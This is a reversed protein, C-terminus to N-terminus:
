YQKCFMERTIASVAPSQFNQGHGHEIGQSIRWQHLSETLNRKDHVRDYAMKLQEPLLLHSIYQKYDSSSLNKYYFSAIVVLSSFWILTKPPLQLFACKKRKKWKWGEWFSHLFFISNGLGIVFTFIWSGSLTSSPVNLSLRNIKKEFIFNYFHKCDFHCFM